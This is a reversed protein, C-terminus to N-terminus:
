ARGSRLIGGGTLLLVAMAALGVAQVVLVAAVVTM